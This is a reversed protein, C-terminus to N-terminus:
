SNLRVELSNHSYGAYSFWFYKWLSSNISRLKFYIVDIQGPEVILGAAYIKHEAAQPVGERLPIPVVVKRFAELINEM